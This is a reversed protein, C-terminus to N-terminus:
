QTSHCCPGILDGISVAKVRKHIKKLEDEVDVRARQKKTEQLDFLLGLVARNSFSMDSKRRSAFQTNYENLKQTDDILTTEVIKRWANTNKKAAAGAEVEPLTKTKPQKFQVSM